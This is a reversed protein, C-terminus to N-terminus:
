LLCVSPAVYLNRRLSLSSSCMTSVGLATHRCRSNGHRFVGGRTTVTPTVGRKCCWNHPSPQPQTIEIAPSKLSALGPFASRRHIALAWTYTTVARHRSQPRPGFEIPPHARTAFDFDTRPKAPGNQDRDRGYRPSTHTKEAFSSPQQTKHTHGFRECCSPRLPWADDGGRTCHEQHVDGRWGGANSVNAEM